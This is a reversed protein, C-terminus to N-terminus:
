SETNFIHRGCVVSLKTINLLEESTAMHFAENVKLDIRCAEPKPYNTKLDFTYTTGVKSETALGPTELHMAFGTTSTRRSLLIHCYQMCTCCVPGQRSSCCIVLFFVISQYRTHKTSYLHVSLFPWSFNLGIHLKITWIPSLNVWGWQEVLTLKEM